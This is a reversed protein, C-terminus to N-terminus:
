LICQKFIHNLFLERLSSKKQANIINFCYYRILAFNVIELVIPTDALIGNRGASVTIAKSGVRTAGPTYASIGSM